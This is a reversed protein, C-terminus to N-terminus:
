QKQIYYGDTQNTPKCGLLYKNGAEVHFEFGPSIDTLVSHIVRGDALAIDKDCNLVLRYDGTRLYLREPKEDREQYDELAFRNIARVRFITLDPKSASSVVVVQAFDSVNNPTTNSIITTCATLLASLGLMWSSKM